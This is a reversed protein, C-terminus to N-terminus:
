IEKIKNELNDDTNASTVEATHVVSATACNAKPAITYLITIVKEEGPLLTFPECKVIRDNQSCLANKSEVFIFSGALPDTLTVAAEPQVGENKVTFVFEAKEGRVFTDPASIYVSVDREYQVQANLRLTNLTVVSVIGLLGLVLINQKTRQRM